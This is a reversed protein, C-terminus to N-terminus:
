GSFATYVSTALEMLRPHPLEGAIVFGLPGDLWYCATVGDKETVLFSTERNNKSAIVFVTIRQKSADEYMLQAAPGQDTALLRGGLLEFGKEKLNPIVLTSGVRKSLWTVLHDADNAAVEVAHRNEKTYVEHALIASDTFALARSPAPWQAALWGTLAGVLLLAIGAAIPLATLGRKRHRSLAARIGPPLPEATVPDFASKLLAKQRRWAEVDARAAPDTALRQNLAECESADLEGDAFAQLAWDEIRSSESM